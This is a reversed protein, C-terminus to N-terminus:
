SDNTSFVRESWNWVSVGQEEESWPMSSPLLMALVYQDENGVMTM